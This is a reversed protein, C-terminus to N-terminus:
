RWHPIPADLGQGTVGRGGVIVRKASYRGQQVAYRGTQAAGDGKQRMPPDTQGGVIVEAAARDRVGETIIVESASGAEFRM